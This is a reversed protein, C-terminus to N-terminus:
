RGEVVDLAGAAAVEEDVGVVVEEVDASRAAVVRPQVDQRAALLHDHGVLRLRDELRDFSRAIVRRTTSSPGGALPRRARGAAVSALARPRCRSRGPRSATPGPPPRAVDSRRCRRDGLAVDLRDEVRLRAHLPQAPRRPRAAREGVRDRPARTLDRGSSRAGSRPRARCLERPRGGPRSRGGCRPQVLREGPQQPRAQNVRREGLVSIDARWPRARCSSTRCQCLHVLVRPDQEVRPDLLRRVEVRRATVAHLQVAGVVMVVVRAVVAVRDLLVPLEEVAHREPVDAAGLPLDLDAARVGEVERVQDDRAVQVLALDPLALVDEVRKGSPPMM